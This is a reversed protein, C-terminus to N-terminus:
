EDEESLKLKHLTLKLTDEKFNAIDKKGKINFANAAVELNMILRDSTFSLSESYNFTQDDENKKM